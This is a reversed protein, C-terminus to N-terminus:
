NKRNKTFETPRPPHEALRILEVGVARFLTREIESSRLMKRVTERALEYKHAVKWESKGEVLVARRVRAYLELTYVERREMFCRAIPINWPVETLDCDLVIKELKDTEKQWTKAYPVRM